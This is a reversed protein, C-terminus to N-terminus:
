GFVFMRGVRSVRLFRVFLFLVWIFLCCFLHGGNICLLRGRNGPLVRTGCTVLVTRFGYSFFRRGVRRGRVPLGVKRSYSLRFKSFRAYEVRPLRVDM